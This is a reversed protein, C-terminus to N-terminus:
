WIRLPESGSGQEAGKRCWCEWRNWDLGEAGGSSVGVYEASRAPCDRKCIAEMTSRSRGCGIVFLAVVVALITRM